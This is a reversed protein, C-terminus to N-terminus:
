SSWSLRLKFVLKLCLFLTSVLSKLIKIKFKKSREIAIYKTIKNIALGIKIILIYM